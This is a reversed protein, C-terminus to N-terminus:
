QIPEFMHSISVDHLQETYTPYDYLWTTCTEISPQVYEMIICKDCLVIAGEREPSLWYRM